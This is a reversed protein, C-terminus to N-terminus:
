ERDLIVMMSLGQGATLVLIESCDNGYTLYPKINIEEAWAATVGNNKINMYMINNKPNIYMETKYSSTGAQDTTNYARENIPQTTVILNGDEYSYVYGLMARRPSDSFTTLTSTTLETTGNTYAIINKSGISDNEADYLVYIGNMYGDSSSKSYTIIDGRSVKCAAGEINTANDVVSLDSVYFETPVFGAANTNKVSGEIKYMVQEDEYAKTINTVAMLNTYSFNVESDSAVVVYDAMLTKTNTGYAVLKKRENHSVASGKQMTIFRADRTDKVSPVLVFKTADNVGVVGDFAVANLYRIGTTIDKKIIFLRDSNIPAVNYKESDIPFEIVNIEGGANIKYRVIGNYEANNLSHLTCYEEIKDKAEAEKYVRKKTKGTNSRDSDSIIIEDEYAGLDEEDYITVKEALKFDVVKNDLEYLRVYYEEGDSGNEDFWAKTIYGINWSNDATAVIYAVEGFIDFWFTYLTKTKLKDVGTKEDFYDSFKYTGGMRTTVTKENNDKSVIMDQTSEKSVYIIYRDNKLNKAVSLVSNESIDSLEMKDGYKDTIKYYYEELQIPVDNNKTYIIEKSTDVYSAIYTKFDEIFVVDWDADGDNNYLKVIGSKPKFKDSTFGTDEIDMVEGNYVIVAGIPIQTKKLKGYESEYYEYTKTQINFDEILTSKITLVENKGSKVASLLILDGSEKDKKYYGTVAFGFLGDDSTGNVFKVGDIQINGEGLTSRGNKCMYGDDEVIGSIKYIKKYPFYPVSSIDTKVINIMIMCANYYDLEADLSTVNETLGMSKAAEEVGNTLLTNTYGLVTLVSALAENTGQVNDPNYRGNIDATIANSRKLLWIRAYNDTLPDVDTFYSNTDPVIDSVNADYIADVLIKAFEGKSVEANLNQTGDYIGLANLIATQEANFSYEKEAGAPLVIVSVLLAVCILASIIKKM